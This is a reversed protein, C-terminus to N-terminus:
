RDSAPPEPSSSTAFAPLLQPVDVYPLPIARGLIVDRSIPGFVHSDFSNNRNDGLVFFQDAPVVQPPLRYYTPVTLYPEDLVTGDIRVRGESVEVSEGPLAVVRKILYQGAVRPHKFVVIDGRQPSGFPGDDRTGPEAAIATRTLLSSLDLYALKSVLLFQGEHLTPDMSRQEVRFTQVVTQLILFLAVALATTQLLERLASRM